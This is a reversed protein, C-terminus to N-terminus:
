RTQKQRGQPASCRAELEESDGHWDASGSCAAVEGLNPSSMPSRVSGHPNRFVTIASAGFAESIVFFTRSPSTMVVRLDRRASAVAGLGPVREHVQVVPPSGLEDDKGLVLHLILFDRRQESIVVSFASMGCNSTMAEAALLDGRPLSWSQVEAASGGPSKLSLVTILSSSSQLDCDEQVEAVAQSESSNSLVFCFNSAILARDPTCWCAGLPLCSGQLLALSQTQAEEPGLALALLEVSKSALVRHVLVLVEGPVRGVAAATVWAARLVSSDTDGWPPTVVPRATAQLCQSQLARVVSVVVLKGDAAGAVLLEEEADTKAEAASTTQVRAVSLWLSDCAVRLATGTGDLPGVVIGGKAHAVAVASGDFLLTIRGAAARSRAQAELASHPVSREGGAGGASADTPQTFVEVERLLEACHKYTDFPPADLDQGDPLGLVPPAM